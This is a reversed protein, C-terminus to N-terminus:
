CCPRYPPVRKVVAGLRGTLDTAADVGNEALLEPPSRGVPRVLEAPQSLWEGINHGLEQTHTVETLTYPTDDVVANPGARAEGNQVRLSAFEVRWINM